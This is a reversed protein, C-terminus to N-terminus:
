DAGPRSNTRETQGSWPANTRELARTVAAHRIGHPRAKLGAREGLRRVIDYVAGPQLRGSGKGARDLSIFLPGGATGRLALWARLAASTRGPLSLREKAARGKGLIAVAPGQGSLDLDEVDIGVAEARRLGLDYLLCLLARDRVAKRDRVAPT